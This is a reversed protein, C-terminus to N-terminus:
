KSGDWMGKAFGLIAYGLSLAEEKSLRIVNVPINQFLEIEMQDGVRWTQGYSSNSAYEDSIRLIVKKSNTGVEGTVKM